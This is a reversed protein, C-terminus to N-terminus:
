KVNEAIRIMTDMDLISQLRYHIGTAEDQWALINLNEPSPVTYSSVGSGVSITQGDVTIVSSGLEFAEEAAWDTHTQADIVKRLLAVM